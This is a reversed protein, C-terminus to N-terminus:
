RIGLKKELFEVRAALEQIEGSRAV